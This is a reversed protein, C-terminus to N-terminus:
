LKFIRYNLYDFRKGYNMGSLKVFYLGSAFNSLDLEQDNKCVDNVQFAVRGSVDLLYIDNVKINSNTRIHIIDNVITPFIQIGYQNVINDESNSIICNSIINAQHTFITQNIMVSNRFEKATVTIYGIQLQNPNFYVWGNQPHIYYPTSSGPLLNGAFQPYLLPQAPCINSDILTPTIFYSLSDGDIDTANFLDWAPQLVCFEFTPDYIFNVSSNGPYNLNDIRTSVYLGYNNLPSIASTGDQTFSLIWDDSIFPLSVVNQFVYKEIGYGFGGFCSSIVPQVYPCQPLAVPIGFQPIRISDSYNNSQSSICVLVSDMAAIGSCERYYTVKVNYQNGSVWEYTINAGLFHSGKVNFTFMFLVLCILAVIRMLYYYNFYYGVQLEPRLLGLFLQM